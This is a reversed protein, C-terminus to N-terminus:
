RIPATTIILSATRPWTSPRIPKIRVLASSSLLAPSTRGVPTTRWYILFRSPSIATPALFTTRQRTRCHLRNAPLLPLWELNGIKRQTGLSLVPQHAHARLGKSPCDV